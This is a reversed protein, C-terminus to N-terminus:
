TKELNDVVSLTIINTEEHRSIKRRGLIVM